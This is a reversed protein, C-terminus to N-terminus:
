TKEVCKKLLLKIDIGNYIIQAIQDEKEIFIPPAKRVIFENQKKYGNPIDCSTEMTKMNVYYTKNTSSDLMEIWDKVDEVIMKEEKINKSPKNKSPKNKSPENGM